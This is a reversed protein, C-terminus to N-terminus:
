STVHSLPIMSIVASISGELQLIGTTYVASDSFHIHLIYQVEVATGDPIALYICALCSFPPQIESAHSVFYAEHVVHLSGSQAVALLVRKIQNELQITTDHSCQESQQRSSM